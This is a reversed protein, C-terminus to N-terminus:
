GGARGNFSIVCSRQLSVQHDAVMLRVNERAKHLTRPHPTIRLAVHQQIGQPLWEDIERAM